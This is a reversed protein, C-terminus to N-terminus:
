KFNNLSCNTIKVEYEIAYNGVSCPMTDLGDDEARSEAETPSVSFSPCLCVVSM